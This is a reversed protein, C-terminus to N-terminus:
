YARLLSNSLQAFDSLKLEEARRECFFQFPLEKLDDKSVLTSLSTYLKKRRQGFAARVVKFFLKESKVTFGREQPTKPKLRLFCSDVKPAPWFSGKKIKFLVEPTCFYNAFCTLSSYDKSGVGATLRVGVERQVTIFIDDVYSISNFLHELIPTTIYYPLNGIIKFSSIAHLRAYKKIDFKLIDKCIIKASPNEKTEEKLIACFRRDVEVAVLRRVKPLLEFTLAGMGPGIELISMKKSLPIAAVIKKIINKDNLFNQGFRKLPTLFLNM